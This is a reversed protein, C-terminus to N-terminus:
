KKRSDDNKVSKRSDEDTYEETEDEEEAGNIINFIRQVLDALDEACMRNNCFEDVTSPTFMTDAARMVMKTALQKDNTAEARAMLVPVIAPIKKLVDYEKGFVTVKIVEKNREQMFKDFNLTNM